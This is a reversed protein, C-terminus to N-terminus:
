VRVGKRVNREKVSMVTIYVTAGIDKFVISLISNM